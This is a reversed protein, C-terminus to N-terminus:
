RHETDGTNPTSPATAPTSPATGPEPLGARLQAFADRVLEGPNAAETAGDFWLELAGKCAAGVALHLLTPYLDRDPDTGTREAIAQAILRGIRQHMEQKKVLLSPSFDVIEMMAHTDELPREPDTVIDLVLRELSDWIPEGVPRARLADVWGHVQAEFHALVAEEKGSFYNHFTRVSVGARDAIAEATAGEVGLTLVLHAAADALATRTAAKKRDRLGIDSTM